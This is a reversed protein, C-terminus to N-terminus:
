GGLRLAVLAMSLALVRQITDGKTRRAIWAGLQSGPIAGSALLGAQLLSHDFGVHGAFVHTASAQGGMAAVVLQSTGVSIHVPMHLVITLMPVQIPGGGIGLMAGLFGTASSLLVGLWLRFSYVYRAGDHDRMHRTVVGLGTVSERIAASTRRLLLYLAIAM